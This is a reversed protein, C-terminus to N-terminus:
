PMNKRECEANYQSEEIFKVSNPMTEFYHYKEPDVYSEVEEDAILEIIRYIEGVPSTHREVDRVPRFLLTM